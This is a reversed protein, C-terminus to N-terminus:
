GPTFASVVARTGGISLAVRSGLRLRPRSPARGELAAGCRRSIDKTGGPCSFRAVRNM